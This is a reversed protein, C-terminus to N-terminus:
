RDAIRDIGLRRMMARVTGGPDRSTGRGVEGLLEAARTASWGSQDLAAWLADRELQEVERRLNMQGLQIRRELESREILRSEGPTPEDTKRLLRRPLDIALLEDGARKHVLAEYIANRLERINGPWPYAQLIELVHPSPGIVKGRQGADPEEAYFRRIMHLVLAPLDEGRERLPPLDISLIALREYLDAGFEGARILKLLDRNTAAIIRFDVQKWVNEGLRSVVHDELVRLLKVQLTPPTDDIEDLFVTGGAAAVFQGDYERVAGSFAGRTYGFLESEILDNPMAACNIPVFRAKKRNSWRHVIRAALDKGTGTEGILLVPMSTRGAHWLRALVARAASSVAVFDPPDPIEPDGDPLEAIRSALRKAWSPEQISISEYAGLLAADRVDDSDLARGSLWFWHRAGEPAEPPRSSARWVIVTSARESFELGATALAQRIKPPPSGLLRACHM